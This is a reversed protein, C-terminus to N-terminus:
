MFVGVGSVKSEGVKSGLRDWISKKVLKQGKMHGAAGPEGVVKKQKAVKSVLRLKTTESQQAVYRVSKLAPSKSSATVTLSSRKTKRQLSETGAEDEVGSDGDGEDKWANDGQHQQDDSLGAGGSSSPSTCAQNGPIYIYKSPQTASGAQTPQASKSFPISQWFM